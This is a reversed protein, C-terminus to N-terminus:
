AVGAADRRLVRVLGAAAGLILVVAVAAPLGRSSGGTDSQRTSAAPSAPATSVALGPEAPDSPSDTLNPAVTPHTGPDPASSVTSLPPIPPLSV